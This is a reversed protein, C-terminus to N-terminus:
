GSQFLSRTSPWLLILLTIAVVGLDLWSAVLGPAAAVDLLSSIAAICTLIVTSRWSGRRFTWVGYAHNLLVLGVIVSAAAAPLGLGTLAWHLPSPRAEAILGITVGFAALADVALSVAVITLGIPRATRRSM